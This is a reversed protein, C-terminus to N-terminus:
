GSLVIVSGHESALALANGTDLIPNEFYVLAFKAASLTVVLALFTAEAGALNPAGAATRANPPPVETADSEPRPSGGALRAIKVAEGKGMMMYRSQVLRPLGVSRSGDRIGEAWAMVDHTTEFIRSTGLTRQRYVEAEFCLVDHVATAWPQGSRLLFERVSTVCWELEAMASYKGM